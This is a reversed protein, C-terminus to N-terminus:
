REMRPRAVFRKKNTTQYDRDLLAFLEDNAAITPARSSAGFLADIAAATPRIPSASVGRRVTAPASQSGMNNRVANLDEIDVDGDFPFTDGVGVGGFNNRVDNLDDLNVSGDLNTDGPAINLQRVDLVYEGRGAVAALRVYFVGGAVSGFRLMANRGDHGNNDGSAVLQGNANYLELLPDLANVFEGAGDGPTRTALDLVKGPLLEVRFWDEDMSASADGGLAGVAYPVAIMRQFVGERSYVDIRPLGSVIGLYIENEVIAVGGYGGANTLFTHTVAGTAPDIEVIASGFAVTAVLRDPDSAGALGGSYGLGPLSITKTLQDSTPDFEYFTSTAYDALYIKGGLAALGDFSGGTVSDVDIIAGTDPDLEYLRATGFGNLYFLSMGNFALGDPGQAAGDPVAFQRIETGTLPDLEVILNRGDLAAAFLRTSATAAVGGIVTGSTPLTQAEALGNNAGLDLGADKLLTLTYEEGSLGHVVIYYVGAQPAVFEPITTGFTDSELTSTVLLQGLDNEISLESEVGRLAKVAMALSEGSALDVRYYDSTAIPTPPAQTTQLYVNATYSGSNYAGVDLYYWGSALIRMGYAFSLGFGAGAFGDDLARQAGAENRWVFTTDTSQGGDVITTVLDGAQFNYAFLDRDNPITAGATASKYQVERWAQSAVNAATIVNNPEVEATFQGDTRPNGGNNELWVTLEYSGFNVGDSPVRVYYATSRGAGSVTHRYILADGGSGSFSYDTAVLLPAAASGAYLELQAASLTGRGSGLGAISVTLVDGNSMGGIDFWDAGSRVSLNGLISLQYLNKADVFNATALNAAVQTNNPEVETPLYGEPRNYRGVVNALSEGGIDVFAGNLDQATARTDNLNGGHQELEVDANLVATIAYNGTSTSADNIVIRYVGASGIPAVRLVAEGGAAPATATAIVAGSPHVLAIATTLGDGQGLVTLSQRADLAIEFADFDNAFGLVGATKGRYVQSGLPGVAQLPVALAGVGTDTAFNVVFDGGETGNGSVGPPSPFAGSEGDINIGVLDEFAGDRSFLTIRYSDEALAAYTVSLVMGTADWSMEQPAVIRQAGLAFLELDDATLQDVRMPEAFTIALTADGSPLADGPAVSSGVIRPATADLVFQSSFASLPTGQLDELAGQVLTIQHVGETFGAPITFRVAAGHVITVNTAPVGDVELDGSNVSGLLFGESFRVEVSAPAFRLRAGDGPTVSSVAFPAPIQSPNGIKLLYDGQSYSSRPSSSVEVYYTNIGRPITFGIRANRGDAASDDDAVVVNGAANLLRLQPNLANPPSGAADGPTVTELVLTGLEVVTVTYLDVDDGLEYTLNDLLFRSGSVENFDLVARSVPAGQYAFLAEAYFFGEDRLEVPVTAILSGQVDFLDVVVGDAVVGLTNLLVAFDLRTTPTAFDLTLVGASTGEIGIGDSFKTAGPGVANFHADLSDNGGVKFDFTVQNFVLGDVPQFPLENFAIREANNPAIRGFLRQAGAVARSEVDQAEATADNLEQEISVDRTVLLRYAPGRSANLVAYYTGAAPARFDSISQVVGVSGPVGQALANGLADRLELQVFDQGLSDVALSLSQSAALAISYYDPAAVVAAPPSTSSLYLTLDYEGLGGATGVHLYYSSNVAARFVYTGVRGGGDENYDVAQAPGRSLYLEMFPLWGSTPDVQVTLLDGANLNLRYFDLDGFDSVAGRTSSQRVVERWSSSIDDAAPFSENPESEFVDTGGPLPPKGVAEVLLSLDYTGVSGFDDALVYYDGTTPITFRDILGEAGPGSFNDGVVFNISGNALLYLNVGVNFTTGRASEAGAAAITVVDGAQFEGLRYWDVDLSSHQAAEIELQYFRRSPSTWNENLETASPNSSNPEVEFPAKGASAARGLVLAREATGDPSTFAAELSQATSATDNAAGGFEEVEHAVNVLPQLSYVGTQDTPAGVEFTYVGAVALKVAPLLLQDSGVGGGSLVVSGQPDRVVVRPQWGVTSTAQVSLLQGTELELTFSDTDGNVGIIGQAAASFALSGHPSLATFAGVFPVVGFDLEMSSSYLESPNGFADSLAGAAITLQLTGERNLGSLHFRVSDADLLELSDVVGQNLQLDTMGLSVADIAENFHVDLSTFPLVVSSGNAPSTSAVQLRLTDYFFGREFELSDAGDSARQLAGAEMTMAQHGQATVPSSVFTFVLSNADVVNVVNSPIGNVLFDNANATASNFEQSFNVEFVTPRTALVQDEGPVTSTVHLDFVPTDFAEVVFPSNAGNGDDVDASLGFGRRAFATWIEKANTGGTLVEDALLIADRSQTFTPNAPQLKLGDMVLQLALLNGCSGESQYGLAINPEYGYKDILLWNMDWLASSWIEGANHVEPSQNYVALTLPNIAMDVSYPFRRIGGGNDPQGLVYNGQPYAALKTDGPDQTFMLAWWDSWGEGMGGSQLSNLANSNAPGGTLRNSVGHGYEHVIIENALSSDRMPSTLSFLFQQMRPSQGDPPTFMNANNLGSGDQADAQVPDEGLGGEGYNNVQFNGAAADFGYRYHVDHLINNWYFLNTIAADRYSAPEQATDFPFDFLLSAGGNPRFGGADNADSDEQASVNNGRTDTFEAGDAGNTDHWGFPSAVPDPPDQVTVRGQESPSESPRPFVHYSARSAWDAALLLEGSNADVAADYWHQGDPTRLQMNWGLRVGGDANPVFIQRPAIPDRSYGFATFVPESTFPVPGAADAASIEGHLDLAAGAAAVAQQANLVPAARLSTAANNLGVVFSSGVNVVRGDATVNINLTANAVRLGDLTQAFYIHTVGSLADSYEDTVVATDIDSQSLGLTPANARLYAKAIQLPDGATPGTLLDGDLKRLHLQPPVFFPLDREHQPAVENWGAGANPPSVSLLQRAELTELM